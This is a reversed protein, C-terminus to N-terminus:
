GQARRWAAPTAGVMRRFVTTFHSQDCFGTAAAVDALPLDGRLMLAKAREVRAETQWRHLTTGTSARFARCLHARSLGAVRALEALPIEEGLRDAISDKVRALVAPALAGRGPSAVPPRRRAVALLLLMAATEAFLRQPSAAQEVECRLAQLLSLCLPETLDPVPALMDAVPADGDDPAERAIEVMLYTLRSAGTVDNTIDTGAPYFAARNAATVMGATLTFTAGSPWASAMWFLGLLL